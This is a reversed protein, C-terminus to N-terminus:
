GPTIEANAVWHASIANAAPVSVNNVYAYGGSRTGAGSTLANVDTTASINYIKGSTGSNPSYLTVSSPITRMTTRFPLQLGAYSTTADVTRALAGNPSSASGPAIGNDYSSQLYRECFVIEEHIPRLEPPPPNSNLGTTANPTVRLDIETIRISKGTTSFNNGFDLIIEMGLASSSSATWTYSVLTWASNACSQLSVASIDTTNSTYNDLASPHLVSLTPTISGGTANYIQAQLTVTQSTMPAAIVAEIPQKLKVDTVSTAGTIQLSYYTLLRGTASAVTVSAGTPIVWWGDATYQGSTTITMSAIGRQWVDMTGNHIKNVHGGQGYVAFAQAVYATSAAKTSNDAATQTGVIPNSITPATALVASGSGTTAVGQVASASTWQAMQGNTPTGTITVTGSGATTWAPSGSVMGLVTGNSGAALRTPLGSAGGYMLDGLTTMPNGILTGSTPLNINTAGTATLTIAYPGSTTLSGALSVVKGGISGVTTITSGATNTVDGTLALFQASKLHGYSDLTAFGNASSLGAQLAVITGQSLGLDDQKQSFWYSWQAPTPVYDYSWGPNSGM